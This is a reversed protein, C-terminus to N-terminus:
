RGHPAQPVRRLRTLDHGTERLIHVMAAYHEASIEPTRAMVWAYRRDPVSIITTEYADDLYVILYTAKFPWIFQMGWEANTARNRVYGVPHYARRPGGPAGANFTFTTAIAGDARLAYNEVANHANKEIFVPLHAIVYWDGM